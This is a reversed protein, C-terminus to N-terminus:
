NLFVSHLPLFFYSKLLENSSERKERQDNNADPAAIVYTHRMAEEGREGILIEMGLSFCGFNAARCNGSRLSHLLMSGNLYHSPKELHM